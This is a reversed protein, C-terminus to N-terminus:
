EDSDTDRKPVAKYSFKYGKRQALYVLTGLTIEFNSHEYCYRLMSISAAKDYRTKGDLECLKLYLKEGVDYNFATVIAMAVSYWDNYSYTISLKRKELYKIISKVTDRDKQKNRGPENRRFNTGNYTAFAKRHKEAEKKAKVVEEPQEVKFAEVEDKVHLNPDYSVFCLRPVDKCKQDLEIGYKDQFYKHLQIFAIKHWYVKDELDVEGYDLLVLGKYGKGSPSLWFSFVHKDGTLDEKVKAMHAADLKDIDLTMLCNYETCNVAAHGGVFIGSFINAPLESKIRDYEDHNSEVVARMCLINAKQAGDRIAALAASLPQHVVRKSTIGSIWSVPFSLLEDKTIM